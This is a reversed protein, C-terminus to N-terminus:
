RARLTITRRTGGHTTCHAARTVHRAVARVREVSLVLTGDHMHDKADETVTVLLTVASPDYLQEGAQPGGM